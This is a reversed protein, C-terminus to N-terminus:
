SLEFLDDINLGKEQWLERYYSLAEEKTAFSLKVPEAQNELYISVTVGSAEPTSIELKTVRNADFPRRLPSRLKEIM